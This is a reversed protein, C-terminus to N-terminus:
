ESAQPQIVRHVPSQASEPLATMERVQYHEDIVRLGEDTAYSSASSILGFSLAAKAMFDQLKM